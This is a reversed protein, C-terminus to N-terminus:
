PLVKDLEKQATHLSNGIAKSDEGFIEGSCKDLLAAYEQDQALEELSMSPLNKKLFLVLKQFSSKEEFSRCLAYVQSPQGFYDPDNFLLAIATSRADFVIHGPAQPSSIVLARTKKRNDLLFIKQPRQNSILIVFSGEQTVAVPKSDWLSVVSLNEGGIEHKNVVGEAQILRFGERAEAPMLFILLFYVWLIKRM